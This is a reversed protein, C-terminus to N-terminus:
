RMHKQLIRLLERMDLPKAIHANMGSELCTKVDESFADATMAIIPVNADPRGSERIARTAEYGNMVPMRLDMLVADYTGPAEAKFKEVCVAGDEARDVAFGVAGLLECAIEWNLDNDEAVLLRRGTFDAAGGEDSPEAAKAEGGAYPALGYYLTSQFLPKSIFGSIGAQRAESEINSWDYASILLIPVDNGIRERLLRATEIGDIDPMQWDILVIHYDRGEQHRKVAMEVAQEGGTAWEARVGIDQLTDAASKCLAEDDDVVLMDWAPLRMDAQDAHAREFDLTVHFESGQDLKSQVEITGHMADVIYRTIAMGLGTGEMKKVRTSDERVFSDFIRKQFEESMGIGTDRVRFHTRVHEAGLPSDEQEVTLTITGGEPTFKLANSLLNLLVQNLRVGDSCVWETQINRIFVDFKQKRSSVQPQIISVISEATEQLSIAEMSLTMKGSEIKSMDLVDNILGLLHRSSLSIKRLCDRVQEPKDINAAAIATMGVIANMPTRIDHSMNSLFESKALNAHEAQRQAEEVARLQQRSIRFYGYFVALMAILLIACGALATYMRQTGLNSVAEDLLGHPMITILYWDSNPLASCYVHRQQGDVSVVLSADSGTAIANEIQEVSQETYQEATAHERLWSFYNDGQADSNRVVFTGDKEVIHSFVLTQDTDLSLASNLREIPVGAVLATCHGGGSLPYGESTPYGVSVGYLLLLEGDAARGALVKRENKNMSELFGEPDIVSVEGGYFVEAKGQTDYLALYCFDRSLGNLTMEEVFEQSYESISEPPTRTVIGDVQTLQMTARSSFHRKLQLNVEEMYINVVENITVDSERVMYNTIWSFVGVCILLLAILSILLFRRIRTKM